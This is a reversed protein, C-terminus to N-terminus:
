KSLLKIKQNEFNEITILGLDLLQKLKLIEDAVSQGANQYSVLSQEAKNQMYALTSVIEHAAKYLEKYLWSNSKTETSILDLFWVSNIPDNVTIKVKLQKILEINNKKGVVGGVIAGAGGFLLGGVVASGLGGKSITRGNEIMEYDIIDTFNYLPPEKFKQFNTKRILWQSNQEDIEIYGAISRSCSFQSLDKKYKSYSRMDDKINIISKYKLNVGGFRYGCEEICGKCIYGDMMRKKFIGLRGECISCYVDGM